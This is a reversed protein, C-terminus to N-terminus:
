TRFYAWDALPDLWPDDPGVWEMRSCLAARWQKQTHQVAWHGNLSQGHGPRKM